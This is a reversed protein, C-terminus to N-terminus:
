TIINTGVSDENAAAKSILSNRKDEDPVLGVKVYEFIIIGFAYIDLFSAIIIDLLFLECVFSNRELFVIFISVYDTDRVIPTKRM